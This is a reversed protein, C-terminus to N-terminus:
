QPSVGAAFPNLTVREGTVINILQAVGAQGPDSARIVWGDPLRVGFHDGLTHMVSGSPDKGEAPVSRQANDDLGLLRTEGLGGTGLTYALLWRDGVRVPMAEPLNPLLIRVELTALDVAVLHANDSGGRALLENDTIGRPWGISDLKRSAGTAADIFYSTCRVEGWCSQVIITKGDLSTLVHWVSLDQLPEALPAPTPLPADGALGTTSKVWLGLDIGTRRDIRVYYVEDGSPSLAAAPIIDSGEKLVTKSGDLASVLWITSAAGDDNVVLVSTGVPGSVYSHSWAQSLKLVAAIRGDLTGIRVEKYGQPQMRPSPPPDTYGFAYAQQDWWPLTSLDLDSGNITTPEPTAGGNFPGEYLGFVTAIAILTTAAGFAMLRRSSAGRSPAGAAMLARAEETWDLPRMAPDTWERLDRELRREFDNNTDTM